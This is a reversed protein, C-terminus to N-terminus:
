KNVDFSKFKPTSIVAENKFVVREVKSAPSGKTKLWAKLEDVKEKSGEMEGIVTGQPTNQVWGRVGLRIAEEQTCKRFRVKQVKGFVEFSNFAIPM